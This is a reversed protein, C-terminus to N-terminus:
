GYPTISRLTRATSAGLNLDDGSAARWANEIAIAGLDSVTGITPGMFASAVQSAFGGPNELPNNFLLDGVISMGGGQALSETWFRGSNVPVPDRGSLMEKVQYVIGGAVTTSLLL